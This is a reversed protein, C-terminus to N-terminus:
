APHLMAALRGLWDLPVGDPIQATWGCSCGLWLAMFGAATPEDASDTYVRIVCGATRPRPPPPAPRAARARACRAAHEAREAATMVREPATV